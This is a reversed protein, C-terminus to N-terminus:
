KSSRSDSAPPPNGRQRVGGRRVADPMPRDGFDVVSRRLVRGALDTSLRARLGRYFFTLRFQGAHEHTGRECDSTIKGERMLTPVHTASIHLLEGIIAADVLFTNYSFDITRNSPQPEQNSEIM